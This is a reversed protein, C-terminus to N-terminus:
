AAERRQEDDDDDPDAQVPAAAPASPTQPWTGDRRRQVIERRRQAYVAGRDEGTMAATEMQENSIGAEIRAQAAKAEKLEDMAGRAPGIWLARTWARRRMPDGYGPLTIAGSAVREDILLGYMPQCFQQTLPWRRGTYFRYAQLMAARAASYSANYRLLLEDGPLELAAGIQTVVAIFFPDFQANPRLPNVVSAKEGPALGVIAGNGLALEPAENGASEAGLPPAPMGDPGSEASEVFVTLMASVVAATLEASSYREIQKLPELIPALYPVGRVQGPREKDNWIQLVRRRGTQAGIMPYYTWQPTTASQLDDGPHSDRVWCGVPVGGPSLAIGDVMARSDAAQDKNCVRDAEILQVKLAVLGGPRLEEPTLAFCDGSTMASLLALAQLGYLDLAGEWDCQVPDEAWTEWERLLLANYEEAQEPTIGLAEHDVAPRCILGTGVINTRCRMLAARAVLHNRLADRSRARMTRRESEPTDSTASGIGPFWNALSRLARSAGRWRTEQRETPQRGGPRAEGAAAPQLGLLDAVPRWIGM